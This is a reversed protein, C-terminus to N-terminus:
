ALTRLTSQELQNDTFANRAIGGCHLFGGSRAAKRDFQLAM